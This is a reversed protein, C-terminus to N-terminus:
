YNKRRSARIIGIRFFPPESEEWNHLLYGKSVNIEYEHLYSIIRNYAEKSHYAAIAMKLKPAERIMRYAGSLVKEEAGEVDMKIFDVYMDSFYSDVTVTASDERDGLFKHIITVKDLYPEYTAKLAEIWDDDCEFLYLHKINEIHDLGFFGEAAGCDVVISDPEVRFKKDVYLHPSNETQEYSLYEYYEQVKEMTNLTRKFYLKRNNRYLYFLGRESDFSITRLDNQILERKENYDKVDCTMLYPLSCRLCELEHSFENIGDMNKDFYSLIRRKRSILWNDYRIKEFSKDKQDEKYYYYSNIVYTWVDSLLSKYKKYTRM